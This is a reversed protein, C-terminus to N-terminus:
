GELQRGLLRMLTSRALVASFSHTRLLLLQPNRQQEDVDVDVLGFLLSDHYVVLVAALLQRLLESAAVTVKTISM